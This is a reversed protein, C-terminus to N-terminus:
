DDRFGPDSQQSSLNVSLRHLNPKTKQPLNFGLLIEAKTFYKTWSEISPQAQWNARSVRSSLIPVVQGNRDCSVIIGVETIKSLRNFEQNILNIATSEAQQMLNNFSQNAGTKLSINIFKTEAFAPCNFPLFLAIGIVLCNNLYNGM